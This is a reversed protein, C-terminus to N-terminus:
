CFNQYVTDSNLLFHLERVKKFLKIELSSIYSSLLSVLKELQVDHVTCSSFILVMLSFERTLYFIGKGMKISDTSYDFFFSFFHRKQGTETKGRFLRWDDDFEPRTISLGSKTTLGPGPHNHRCWRM